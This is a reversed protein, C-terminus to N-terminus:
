KKYVDWLTIYGARCGMALSKDDSFTVAGIGKQHFTLVVLPKLSKSSFVRGSNDWGGTVFIKSDGRCCADSFGANTVEASSDNVLIDNDVKFSILTTSTSGCCGKISIESDATTWATLCMIPDEFLKLNSLANPKVTDWLVIHGSEYGVLLKSQPDVPNSFQMKMCMGFQKDYNPQLTSIISNKLSHNEEDLSFSQVLVSSQADSPVALTLQKDTGTLASNCYIMSACPVEVQMKWQNDIFRWVKLLGERGQTFLYSGSTLSRLGIWLVTEDHGKWTSVPRNSGLDWEVIWGEEHGSFIHNAHPSCQQGFVLAYVGLRKQDCLIAVPDPPQMSKGKTGM